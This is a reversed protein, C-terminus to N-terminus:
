CGNLHRWAKKTFLSHLKVKRLRCWHPPTTLIDDVYITYLGKVLKEIAQQCMFVTYFWRGGQLMVAASDIDNQAYSLWYQYKEETTLAM